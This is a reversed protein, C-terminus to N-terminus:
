VPITEHKFLGPTHRVDFYGHAKLRKKLLKNTLIDAEQLGYMWRVTECYLVVYKVEYQPQYLDIFGQLILRIPTRMYQFIELPITLYFNMKEGTMFHAGPSDIVSNWRFKSTVPSYTRAALEGGYMGKLLNGGVPIHVQNPYNKKACFYTCGQKTPNEQYM